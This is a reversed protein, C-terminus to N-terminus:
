NLRFTQGIDRLAIRDRELAAELRQMPETPGEKGLVFTKHHIPLFYEAGAQNAMTVAQEPTCHSHVWPKYSGIPMIALDFPGKKRLPRFTESM